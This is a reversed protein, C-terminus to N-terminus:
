SAREKLVKEAALVALKAIEAETEKLAQSKMESGRDGADKIVQEAKKHADAVIQEAKQAAHETARVEMAQADKNAAAIIGRKEEEAVALAKEAEEADKIGKAIKAEREALIKLVPKYLFYTLIAMLLGFNVVQLLILRADIGFAHILQEM